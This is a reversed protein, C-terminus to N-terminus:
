QVDVFYMIMKGKGKVEISERQTFILSLDRLIESDKVLEYTNKSINIRMPESNSELRSATNITDGFVDYIYKKVGVIGGVVTGTHIGIRVKWKLQANKNRTNLYQIIHVAAKLINEAHHNDPNPMGCVAMYADGITKIRECHNETIIEDFRTYINNLEDILKKPDLNASMQTFGVIDSFFVTVEIFKEPESVGKNKLDNVVKIPLTNLLLKENKDRETAIIKNARQKQIFGYVMIVMTLFIMGFGGLILKKTSEINGLFDSEPIIVGIFFTKNEGAHVIRAGAWYKENAITFSLISDTATQKYVKRAINIITDGLFALPKLLYPKMDEISHFQDERPLGILKNDDTLVFIKQNPTKSLRTTFLSIDTLLIDYALFYFLGKEVSDEWKISLTIGPEKTTFFTYPDTMFIEGAKLNELGQYWPRLRPDYSKTSRKKGLLELNGDRNMKWNIIEPLRRASGAFTIRNQWITDKKLLLYEDGFNNAYLISSIHKHQLMYPFFFDNLKNQDIERLCGRFGRNKEIKIDRLVTFFFQHLEKDTMAVSEHIMDKSLREVTESLNQMMALLVIFAGILLIFIFNGLRFLSSPTIIKM